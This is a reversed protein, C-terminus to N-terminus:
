GVYLTQINLVGNEDGALEAKLNNLEYNAADLQVQLADRKAAFEVFDEQTIDTVAQAVAQVQEQIQEQVATRLECEGLLAMSLSRFDGSKFGHSVAAELARQNAENM